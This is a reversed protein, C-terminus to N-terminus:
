SKSQTLAENLRKAVENGMVRLVEVGVAVPDVIAVDAVVVEDRGNPHVSTSQTLAEKPRSELGVKAEPPDVVGLAEPNVADALGVEVKGKPHVSRSQTLAENLKSGSGVAESPPGEKGVADPDVVVVLGAAEGDVSGNPQVLKSQTLAENSRKDLAVEVGILIGSVVADTLGVVVVSGKPQEFRSHTLRDKPSSRLEVVLGSTNAVVDLGSGTVVADGLLRRASALGAKEQEPRRHRDIPSPPDVFRGAEVPGVVARACVVPLLLVLLTGTLVPDAVEQVSRSQRENLAPSVATDEVRALEGAAPAISLAGIVDVVGHVPRRQRDRPRPPFTAVVGVEDEKAEVVWSAGDMVGAGEGVSPPILRGITSDTLEHVPKSQRERPPLPLEPTSVDDVATVESNGDNATLEGTGADWPIPLLEPVATGVEDHVSRTQRDRLRPFVACGGGVDKGDDVEGIPGGAVVFGLRGTLSCVVEDQEPRRQKDRPRPLPTVPLGMMAVLVM